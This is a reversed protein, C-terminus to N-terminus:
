PGTRIRMSARSLAALEFEPTYHLADKPCGDVCQACYICRDNSIIAAYRKEPLKEIEIAATPCDRVCATCGVCKEPEFVIRGRIAPFQNEGAPYSV